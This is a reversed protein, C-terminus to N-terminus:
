RQRLTRFTLSYRLASGPPISHQWTWRAQGTLLYASRPAVVLTRMEYGYLWGFHATRRRAVQERLRVEAFELAAVERVLLREEEEGVIEPRYAFGPLWEPGPDLALSKSANM